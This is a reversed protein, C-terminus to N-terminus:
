ITLYNRLTNHFSQTTIFLSIGLGDGQSIVGTLLPLGAANLQILAGGSAGKLATCDTSGGKSAMHTIHCAPDYSLLAGGEGKGDDGSYGAMLVTIDADPLDGNVELAPVRSNPVARELKLIAWDANIHGGDALRRATLAISNESGPLLTFEIDRSLDNYLELCHWATVIISAQRAGTPAVLTASCDEYHHRRRGDEVRTGPVRLKGIASLWHPSQVSYVERLDTASTQAQASLQQGNGITLLLLVALATMKRYFTPLLM